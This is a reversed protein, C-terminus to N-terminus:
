RRPDDAPGVRQLRKLQARAEDRERETASLAGELAQADAGDISRRLRAAERARMSLPAPQLKEVAEIAARLKDRTSPSACAHFYLEAEALANEDVAM